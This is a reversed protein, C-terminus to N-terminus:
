TWSSRTTQKSRPPKVRTSCVSSSAAVAVVDDALAHDELVDHALAEFVDDFLGGPAPDDAEHGSVLLVGVHDAFDEPRRAPEVPQWPV